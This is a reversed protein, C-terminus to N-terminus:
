SSSSSFVFVHLLHRFKIALTSTWLFIDKSFFTSLVAALEGGYKQLSTKTPVFDDQHVTVENNEVALVSM